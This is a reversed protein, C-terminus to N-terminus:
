SNDVGFIIFNKAYDNDFSSVSKGGFARRCGSYVYKEEDSNKVINTAGFLFHKSTFNRLWIKPWSDLDHVFYVTKCHSCQM